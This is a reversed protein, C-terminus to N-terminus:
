YGLGKLYKYAPCKKKHEDSDICEKGDCTCIELLHDELGKKTEGEVIVRLIEKATLM